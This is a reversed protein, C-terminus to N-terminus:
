RSYYIDVVYYNQNKLELTLIVTDAVTNSAEDRVYWCASYSDYGWTKLKSRASASVNKPKGLLTLVKDEPIGIMMKEFESKWLTFRCLAPWGKEINEKMKLKTKSEEPVVIKEVANRYKEPVNSFDDTTVEVGDDRQYRYLTKGWALQFCVLLVFM